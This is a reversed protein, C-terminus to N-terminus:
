FHKIATLPIEKGEAFLNINLTHDSLAKYVAKEIMKYQMRNKIKIEVVTLGIGAVCLAAFTGWIILKDKKKEEM